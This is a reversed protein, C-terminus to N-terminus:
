GAEPVTLRVPGAVPGLPCGDRKETRWTLRQETEAIIAGSGDLARLRATAPQSLLSLRWAGGGEDNLAPVSPDDGADASSACEEGACAELAEMRAAPDVVEIRVLPLRAVAPCAVPPACGALVAAVALAAPLLGWRAVRM